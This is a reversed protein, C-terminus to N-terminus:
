ARPPEEALWAMRILELVRAITRLSCGLQEAIEENTYGELKLLAVRRLRATRLGQLRRHFEETVLAAFEPTPERGVVQDLTPEPRDPDDSALDAELCVRGGGRKQRHERQVLDIAKRATLTVLVRWLDDRDDLRPFRGRAM